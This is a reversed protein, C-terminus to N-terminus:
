IDHKSIIFAVLCVNRHLWEVCVCVCVCVKCIKVKVSRM